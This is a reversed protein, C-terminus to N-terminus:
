SVETTESSCLAMARKAVPLWLRSWCDSASGCLVFCIESCWGKIKFLWIIVWLRVRDNKKSQHVVKIENSFLVIVPAIQSSWVLSGAHVM